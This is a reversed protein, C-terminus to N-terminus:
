IGESDRLLSLQCLETQVLRRSILGVVPATHIATGHSVLASGINRPVVVSMPRGGSMIRVIDGSLTTRRNIITSCLYAANARGSGVPNGTTIRLRLATLPSTLEIARISEIMSFIKILKCRAQYPTLAFLNLIGRSPTGSLRAPISLEKATSGILLLTTETIRLAIERAEATPTGDPPELQFEARDAYTAHHLQYEPLPGFAGKTITRLLQQMESLVPAPLAPSVTLVPQSLFPM